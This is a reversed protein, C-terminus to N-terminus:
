SMGDMGHKSVEWPDDGRYAVEHKGSLPEYGQSFYFLYIIKLPHAHTDCM